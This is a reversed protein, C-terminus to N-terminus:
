YIPPTNWRQATVVLHGRGDVTRDGDHVTAVVTLNGFNDDQYERAPNPGGASPLFLGLKDFHGAFKEDEMRKAEADFPVSTWEAMVPGLPLMAGDPLRTSALAEFQAAVPAIRGGGVRAIAYQPVVEIQDIQRFVAFTVTPGTSAVGGTISPTRLGAVADPAVSVQARISHADLGLTRSSTGEGFAVATSKAGLGTGVVTVTGTTGIRMSRPFVALIRPAGGDRTAQWEGGEEAHDADFWRGEIRDGDESVTYVERLSRNNVDASGRWEYGTYVIARSDGKFAVGDTLEYHANYDGGSNRDIRATGYFERGGVARGVVVWEGSLDKVPHKQWDNWAVSSLPFQAGLKDSLSGAAIEFWPRDRGTWSFEISPWQGVHTHVLKRWEAADRRQLSVRALSHCRGCMVDTEEDIVLDKANPRRELAFRGASSEAPALGQTDALYRVIANRVDEELVVGHVQRMRFVTMVWGEPSKRIRSIREFHGDHEQHCGSCNARVLEAGRSAEAAPAFPAGGLLMVLAAAVWVFATYKESV